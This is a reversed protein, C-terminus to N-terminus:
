WDWAGPMRSKARKQGTRAREKRAKIAMRRNFRTNSKDIKDDNEKDWSFGCFPWESSDWTDPGLGIHESVLLHGPECPDFVWVWKLLWDRDALPEFVIKQHMYWPRDDNLLNGPLSELEMNICAEVDVGLRKLLDIFAGGVRQSDLSSFGWWLVNLLGFDGQLYHKIMDTNMFKVIRETIQDIDTDLFNHQTRYGQVLNQLLMYRFRLLEGENLVIVSNKWLWEPLDLSYFYYTSYVRMIEENEFDDVQECDLLFLRATDIRDSQYLSRSSALSYCLPSLQFQNLSPRLGYQVLLRCVDVRSHIAAIQSNHTTITSDETKNSVHLLSMGNTDRTFPHLAGSNFKEQIERLPANGFLDQYLNYLNEVVPYMSLSPVICGYRYQRAWHFGYRLLRWDLIVDYSTSITDNTTNRRDCMKNGEHRVYHVSKQQYIGVWELTSSVKFQRRFTKLKTAERSPCYLEQNNISIAPAQAFTPQQAIQSCMTMCAQQNQLLSPFVSM